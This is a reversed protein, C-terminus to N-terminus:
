SREKIFAKCRQVIAEQEALKKRLSRIEFEAHFRKHDARVVEANRLFDERDRAWAAAVQLLVEKVARQQKWTADPEGRLRDM